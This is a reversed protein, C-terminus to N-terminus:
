VYQLTEKTNWAYILRVKPILKNFIAYIIIVRLNNHMQWFTNKEEINQNM